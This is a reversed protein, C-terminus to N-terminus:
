NVPNWQNGDWKEIWVNTWGEDSCKNVLEIAEGMNDAYGYLWHDEFAEYMVKHSDADEEEELTIVPELEPNITRLLYDRCWKDFNGMVNHDYRTDISAFHRGNMKVQVVSGNGYEFSASKTRKFEYICDFEPQNFEVTYSKTAEM